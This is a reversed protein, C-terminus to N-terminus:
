ISDEERGEMMKVTFEVLDTYYHWEEYNKDLMKVITRMEELMSQLTEKLAKFVRPNGNIVVKDNLLKEIIYDQKTMGSVKVYKELMENEEESMRFAITKGRLRGQRDLNKHSM